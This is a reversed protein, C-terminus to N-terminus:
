KVPQVSIAVAETYTIDVLDGVQVKKLNDPNRAKITQSGGGPGTLTVTGNQLDIATITATLTLTRGITGGPKDGPKSTTVGTDENVGPAGQGAPKVQWAVAQTYSAAVVDGVKVQDLNKVGDPVEVVAEQGKEDKLTVERKALDIATVTARAQVVDETKGSPKQSACGALLALMSVVAVFLAKM